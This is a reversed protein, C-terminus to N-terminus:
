VDYIEDIVKEFKEMIVRRKLKMTPTLENTSVDWPEHLLRFSKIQEIKSFEPNFENIIRQYEAIVKPNALTEKSVVKLTPNHPHDTLTCDVGHDDCWSKLAEAAPVLLASVFKKKEGVVMMQGILFSEKFKNEIPQPAVYKGGSTKLLEKKRDTIKLFDKGGPGKVFKGVDGTCFWKKGNVEKMVKATAEPKKYYGQMINPGNALIEGEGARYNGDSDDIMLEVNPVPLGVSGLMAGSEDMRNFTLAPSTETLGYGERIPIGAASFIKAM